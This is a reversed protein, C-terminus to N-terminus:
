VGHEVGAEGLVRTRAHGALGGGLGAVHHDESLDGGVGEDVEVVQHALHDVADAVVGGIFAKVAIGAAHERGDGRLALIDGQAHVM